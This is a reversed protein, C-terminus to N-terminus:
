HCCEARRSEPHLPLVYVNQRDRRGRIPIDPHREFAAAAGASAALTWEDIAMAADFQRTLAQLRAALNATNGVATWIERDAVQVNGVFDTGTAIGVGVSLTGSELTGASRITAVIARGAEVAAREKQALTDPAGFVAMIGDGGFEVVTGRYRRVIASVRETFRNVTAFIEAPTRDEAFGTFGRMDAFLVSIEREGCVRARGAAPPTAVTEPMPRSFMDRLLQAPGSFGARDFRQRQHLVIWVTTLLVTLVLQGAWAEIGVMASAAAAVNPAILLGAGLMLLVNRSALAGMWRRIALLKAPAFTFAAPPVDECRTADM